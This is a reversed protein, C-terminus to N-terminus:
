HCVLVCPHCYCNGQMKVHCGGSAFEEKEPYTNSSTDAAISYDLLDIATYELGAM